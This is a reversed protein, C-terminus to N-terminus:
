IALVRGQRSWKRCKWNIQTGFINLRLLLESIKVNLYPSWLTNHRRDNVPFSTMCGHSTIDAVQGVDVLTRGTQQVVHGSVPNILSDYWPSWAGGCSTMTSGSVSTGSTTSTAPLRRYKKVMFTRPMAVARPTLVVFNDRCPGRMRSCKVTLLDSAFAVSLKCNLFRVYL